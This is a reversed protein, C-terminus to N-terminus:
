SRAKALLEALDRELAAAKAYDGERFGLAGPFLIAALSAAVLRLAMIRATEEDLGYAERYVGAIRDMIPTPHPGDFATPDAAVLWNMLVAAIRVDPSFDDSLGPPVALGGSADEILRDFAARFLGVKGGFWAQVLRHGHGSAEAVDRV